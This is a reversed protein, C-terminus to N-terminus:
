SCRSRRRCPLRRRGSSTTTCPRRRPSASTSASSPRPAPLPTLARSRAAASRSRTVGGDRVKNDEMIRSLEKKRNRTNLSRGYQWATSVNDIGGAGAKAGDGEARMMIDSMRSLLLRNQHEIGAYREELMQEKKLNRHAQPPTRHRFTLSHSSSIVRVRRRAFARVRVMGFGKPPGCVVSSKAARLKREHMERRHRLQAAPRTHPSKFTLARPLSAAFAHLLRLPFTSPRRARRGYARDIGGRSKISVEAEYLLKNARPEAKRAKDM